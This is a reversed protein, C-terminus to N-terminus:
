PIISIFWGGLKSGLTDINKQTFETWSGEFKANFLEQEMEKSFYDFTEKVIKHTYYNNLHTWTDIL